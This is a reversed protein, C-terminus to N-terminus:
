SGVEIQYLACCAPPVLLEDAPELIDPLSHGPGLWTKDSSNLRCQWRGASLEGASFRVASVDFNLFCVIRSGGHWRQIIFLKHAADASLNLNDKSLNALAPVERRLRILRRYFDRLVQYKESSKGERNLKSRLFTMPSQPDPFEGQCYFGEFEKRRGQRIGEQLGPDSHSVFYLFPNEEGYEEGMFLLPVYPSLIVTAAALKLAEFSVLTSLREGLMRNGVQDHNQSFVIFRHSPCNRSSSGHHKKRFRSYEWSYVFGERIAKGLQETSTSFDSYYGRDEGTLLVHLAHHFDDCWQADLGYGGEQRPRILRADNLDSEPILLHKRGKSRCYEEVAEGLEQLFHKAGLDCIAHVADLRLGDLHFTDFWYLANEIFYSRVQDSWAGDFNVASGWPTRFRDTFYPGFDALYNGEPGLHNYVVDLIVAIGRDHCTNVLKKLGDPGGYSNQVAFPYVGDYGWNREGPFQAVPMLSLTNIGVEQLDDLHSIIGAFTGPESFTGVHLEYIIMEELALGSWAEDSWAFTKHDVIRSPGHVGYPQFESGPDPREKEENLVLIYDDGPKADEIVGNWFGMDDQCLPYIGEAPSVLRVEMRELLPAWIRFESAGNGLYRAGPKM